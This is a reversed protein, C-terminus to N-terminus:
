LRKLLEEKKMQFELGNLVKNEKLEFLREIFSLIEMGDQSSAAPKGIRKLLESKKRAFESETLIGAEEM